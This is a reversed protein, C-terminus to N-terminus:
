SPAVKLNGIMIQKPDPLRSPAVTRTEILRPDPLQSPVVTQNSGTDPNRDYNVKSRATSKAGSDPHKDYNTKSHAASKDCSKDLDEYYAEKKCNWDTGTLVSNRTFIIDKNEFYYKKKYSRKKAGKLPM